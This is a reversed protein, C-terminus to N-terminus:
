LPSIDVLNGISYGSFYQDLLSKTSGKIDSVWKKTVKKAIQLYNEM